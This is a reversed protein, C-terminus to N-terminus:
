QKRRSVILVFGLFALALVAAIVTIVTTLQAQQLAQGSIDEPEEIPETAPVTTEPVAPETPAPGAGPVDGVKTMRIRNVRLHAKEVGTFILLYDGHQPLETECSVGKSVQGLYFASEPSLSKSLAEMDEVESGPQLYVQADGQSAVLNLQYKGAALDNLRLVLCMGPAFRNSQMFGTDVRTTEIGFGGLYAWSGYDTGDVLLPDKSTYYVNGDKTGFTIETVEPEEKDETALVTGAFAFTLMIATLLLIGRRLLSRM